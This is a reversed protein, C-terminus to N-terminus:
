AVELQMIELAWCVAANQLMEAQQNTGSAYVHEAHRGVAARRMKESEVKREKCETAHQAMNQLCFTDYEQCDFHLQNAAFVNFSVCCLLKVILGAAAALM